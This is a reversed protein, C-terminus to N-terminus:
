LIAWVDAERECEDLADIVIVRALAQSRAQQIELLLQLILKEFQDKLAKHSIASDKNLTKRIGLLMGPECAVLSTAITTFFQSANGREGEGRKFFFSAGLQSRSAFSEAITQAITSKGTGAM